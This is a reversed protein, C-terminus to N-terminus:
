PSGLKTAAENAREIHASIVPVASTATQRVNPDDGSKAYMEQVVLASRHALTQQKLYLSDFDKVSVSQLAGLLQAQDSSMAMEPPKLGSRTTADVLAKALQQHDQLMHTAFARVEPNRSQTLAAEASLIEFQDSSAAAQLFERTQSSGAEQAGASAAALALSATALWVAAQRMPPSKMM